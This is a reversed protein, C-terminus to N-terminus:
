ITGTIEDVNNVINKKSFSQLLLLILVSVIIGVAFSRTDFVGTISRTIIEAILVTIPVVPFLKKNIRLGVLAAIFPVIVLPDWFNTVSWILDLIDEKVFVMSIAMISIMVCSVRAIMLQKRDDLKPWIQSCVDRAILTGTANLFADQTSMVIALIGAIMFGIVGTPLHHKVFYFLVSDAQLSTNYTYAMLGILGVVIFVPYMLMATVNFARRLQIQNQSILARQIFPIDANPMAAFVAMGLFMTLNSADIKLHSSPLAKIINDIGGIDHYGIACAVPLAVFFILFQFIDTYAVAQMGGFTSCVTVISLVVLMSIPKPILFFYELMSGIAMTGAATIGLTFIIACISSLWRGSRGYFHEMIDGFTLFKEQHFFHLNKALLRAMVFWGLPILMMTVIFVLGMTYSKGVSGITKHASIATAFTTVILVTTTFPRVGFTYDKLTKVKSFRIFGMILCIVLYVIVLGSDFINM